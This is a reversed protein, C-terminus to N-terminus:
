EKNNKIKRKKNGQIDDELIEIIEGSIKEANEKIIAMIKDVQKKSFWMTMLYKMRKKDYNLVIASYFGIGLNIGMKFQMTRIGSLKIDLDEHRVFFLDRNAYLRVKNDYIIMKYRIIECTQLVLFVLVIIDGFILVISIWTFPFITITCGIFLGVLLIYKFVLLSIYIKGHPYITIGEM